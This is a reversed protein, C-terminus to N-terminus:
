ANRLIDLHAVRQLRLLREAIEKLEKVRKRNGLYFQFQKRKYYIFQWEKKWLELNSQSARM